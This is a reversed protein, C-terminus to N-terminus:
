WKSGMPQFFALLFDIFAQTSKSGAAGVLATAVVSTLLLASPAFARARAFLQSFSM